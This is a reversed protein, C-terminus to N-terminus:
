KFSATSMSFKMYLHEPTVKPFLKSSKLYPFNKEERTNDLFPGNRTLHVSSVDRVAGDQPSNLNNHIKPTRIRGLTLARLSHYNQFLQTGFYGFKSKDYFEPEKRLIVGESPRLKQRPKPYSFRLANSIQSCTRELLTCWLKTASPFQLPWSAQVQDRM